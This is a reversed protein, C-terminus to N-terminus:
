RTAPAGANGEDFYTKGAFTSTKLHQTWAGEKAERFQTVPKEIPLETGALAETLIRGDCKAAQADLGLLHLLTPAVDINGTPFENRYGARVDPGAGVLTNHTDYRSLTGHTGLGVKGEAVILGSAGHENKADRWRFSFIVDPSEPSDLHSDSLAFTGPLANRTFIAGAFDSQQLLAAIKAEVAKDHQAYLLVSAGVGVMFVDGPLPPASYSRVVHVGGENLVKAPDASREITSFGHDSVVFVDTKDLLGRKELAALALGLNADSGHISALAAPHGPQSIHQVFDPDSLWLVTYRPVEDRWLQEILAHTTWANQAANPQPNAFDPKWAPFPDLTAPFDAPHIKGAALTVSKGSPARDHLLAVPKTGAIVTSFGAARASEAVTPVALYHGSTLEDGKRITEADETAVAGKLNIRPRYERNAIVTSRAPFAGTALVTGNVETTTIWFSHNNAFFTGRAALAHLNPTNEATIFDPRMGDWVCLLVHEAKAKPLDACLATAECALIACFGAIVRAL